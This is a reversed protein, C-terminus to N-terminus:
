RIGYARPIRTQEPPRVPRPIHYNFAKHRRHGTKEIKSHNGDAHPRYKNEHNLRRAHRNKVNHRRKEYRHDEYPYRYPEYPRHPVAHVIVREQVASRDRNAAEAELEAQRAAEAAAQAQARSHAVAQTLDEVRELAHNLKRNAAELRQQTLAQQRAIKETLKDNDNEDKVEAPEPNAPTAIDRMYLAAEPPANQNSFHIVGSSDEWFYIDARASTAALWGAAIWLTSFWAAILRKGRRPTAIARM